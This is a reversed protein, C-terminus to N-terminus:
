LKKEFAKAKGTIQNSFMEPNAKVTQCLLRYNRQCEPTVYKTKGLLLAIKQEDDDSVVKAAVDKLISTILEKRYESSCEIMKKISVLKKQDRQSLEKKEKMKKFIKHSPHVYEM